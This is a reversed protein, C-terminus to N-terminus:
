NFGFSSATSLDPLSFTPIEQSKNLMIFADSCADAQDDKFNNTGDFVELETHFDNVYAGAVINVFHAEAVAAFPAFRQIKGKTPRQLRCVFGAESLRKQLGRVYAGGGAPDDPLCIIVDNGDRVATKMITDEVVHARDRFRVVDEVTYIGLKDKSMLVGATWDPNKYSESVQSFSLDWARCRAKVNSPPFLVENVWSRQWYGSTELRATWSGHLMIAKQVRSLSMLNALYQPNAKLLPVNDAIVAKILRFSRIGSAPGVGHVAQAKDLENYWQINNGQVVFYREVNQTADKPIGEDDLYFEEIWHRLFSHYSPNTCLFMQPEHPVYANRMRSLMFTIMNEDFDTAEDYAVFSYQAGKHDLVNSAHQMHSFKLIAKNPFIIETDRHKIRLDPYIASFMNVAEHWISGPAVLMKSNRRFICGTAMPYQMFKLATLLLAYTKGSGASGSYLTITSNSNLLYEQPKSAPALLMPETVEHKMEVAKKTTKRKATAM